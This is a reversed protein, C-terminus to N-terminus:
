VLYGSTAWFRRVRAGKSTLPASPKLSMHWRCPKSVVTLGFIELELSLDDGAGGEASRRGERSGGACTLTRRLQSPGVRQHSSLVFVAEGDRKLEFEDPRASSPAPVKAQLIWAARRRWAARELGWSGLCGSCIRPSIHVKSAEAGWTQITAPWTPAILSGHNHRWTVPRCRTLGVIRVDSIWLGSCYGTSPIDTRTDLATRRPSWSPRRHSRRSMRM